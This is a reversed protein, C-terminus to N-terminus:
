SKEKVMKNRSIYGIGAVAAILIIASIIAHMPEMFYHIITYDGTEGHGPHARSVLPMFLVFLILRISNKKM